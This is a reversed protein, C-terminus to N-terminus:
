KSLYGKPDSIVYNGSAQLLNPIVISRTKGAGSTGVVLVNNNLRTKYCDKSYYQNDGLILTDAPVTNFMKSDRMIYDKRERDRCKYTDM